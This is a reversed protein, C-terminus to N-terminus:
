KHNRKLALEHSHKPSSWIGLAVISLMPLILDIIALYISYCELLATTVLDVMHVKGTQM